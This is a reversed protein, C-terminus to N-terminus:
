LNVLRGDGRGVNVGLKLEGGRVKRANPECFNAWAQMLERRKALVDTRRYAREAESGVVHGMAEEVTDRPFNTTEEAWVRFSSRFGHPVIRKGQVPDIWKRNAPAVKEMRKILTLMAMNSLPEGVKVGHFVYSSERGISAQREGFAQMEKLLDVIQSSLPVRFPETRFEYDKLKVAPITWLKEALDIETWETELVTTTRVNTLILFELVRGSLPSENRLAAMFEPMRVYPLSPHHGKTLRRPKKFGEAELDAIDAPNEAMKIGHDNKLIVRAREFVRRIAPLTKRCVEPKTDRLPKVIAAVDSSTIENVRRNSLAACYVTLHRRWQYKVKDNKSSDEVDKIVLEAVEGFTPILKAAKKGAKEVRRAEVPDIGRAILERAEGAAKRAAALGIEPYSGLGLERRKGDLQYRLYWRGEGRKRAIYYLGGGDGYVGEDATEIKRVTLKNSM